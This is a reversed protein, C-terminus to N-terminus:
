VERLTVSGSYRFGAAARTWKWKVSVLGDATVNFTAGNPDTFSGYTDKIVALATEVTGKQTGTINAWTLKVTRKGSSQVLDTKQAGNAMEVVGGRYNLDEEYESPEALTYGALTTAM